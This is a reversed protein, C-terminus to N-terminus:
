RSRRLSPVAPALRVCVAMARNGAPATPRRPPKLQPSRQRDYCPGVVMWVDAPLPRWLLPPQPPRSCVDQPERACFSNPLPTLQCVDQRLHRRAGVVVSISARTRSQPRPPRPEQQQVRSGGRPLRRRCAVPSWCLWEGDDESQLVTTCRCIVRAVAFIVAVTTFLFFWSNGSRRCRRRRKQQQRLRHATQDLRRQSLLRHLHLVISPRLTPSPLSIIPIDFASTPRLIPPLGPFNLCLSHMHERTCPHPSLPLSRTLPPHQSLKPCAVNVAVNAAHLVLRPLGIM